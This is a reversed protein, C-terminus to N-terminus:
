KPEPDPMCRSIIHARLKEPLDLWRVRHHAPRFSASCEGFQSVSIGTACTGLYQLNRGMSEQWFEPGGLLITYRELGKKHDFCDFVYPPAGVLWRKTARRPRYAM